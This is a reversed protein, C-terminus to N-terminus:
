AGLSSGMDMYLIVITNTRNRVLLKPSGILAVFYCYIFRDGNSETVASRGNLVRSLTVRSVGLAAAAETVSLGLEPLVDQKLIEGPHPPNHMDM